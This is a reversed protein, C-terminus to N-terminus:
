ITSGNHQTTQLEEIKKLIHKLQYQLVKEPNKKTWERNYARFREPDKWYRKREYEHHKEPNERRWKYVAERNREPNKRHRERDIERSCDKCYASLRGKYKGSKTKYFESEDIDRGCRPCHKM